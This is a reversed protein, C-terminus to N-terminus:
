SLRYRALIVTINDEGGRELARAILSHCIAESSEDGALMQAIEAEPVKRTLGDSCLLLRDDDELDIHSMDGEPQQESTGMARTLVHGLRHSDVESQEILGQDAYSQALTHDRTIRHLRGERHLYARSDGVHIVFLDNGVSYAGTLTTGMGKLSTDERARERLASHVGALYLRARARMSEIEADRTAPDDLKLAWRPSKMIMQMITILSTSSAVDGAAHGGLGDAVIMLHGSEETRSSLVSEPVNSSVRELFRGMRFVAFSDENTERVRGIHSHAAVDAHVRSSPLVQEETSMPPAKRESM